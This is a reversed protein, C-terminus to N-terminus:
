FEYKLELIITGSAESVAFEGYCRLSLSYTGAVVLSSSSYPKDMAVWFEYTANNNELKVLIDIKPLNTDNNTTLVVHIYCKEPVELTAIPNLPDSYELQVYSVNMTPNYLTPLDVEINAPTLTPANHEPTLTYHMKITGLWTLACVYTTLLLLMM